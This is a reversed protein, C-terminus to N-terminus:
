LTESPAATLFNATGQKKVEKVVIMPKPESQAELKGIIRFNPRQAAMPAASSHIMNKQTSGAAASRQRQALIQVWGRRAQPRPLSVARECQFGERQCVRAASRM